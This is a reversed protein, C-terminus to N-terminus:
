VLGSKKAAMYNDVLDSIQEKTTVTQKGHKNKQNSLWTNLLRKCDSSEAVKLRLPDASLHAYAEKAAQMFDKGKHTSKLNEVFIEDFQKLFWELNKNEYEQGQEQGNGQGQGQGQGRVLPKYAGVKNKQLINIVSVHLRNNEKLEGYQFDIFDKIFWKSGGNIIEIKGYFAEEAKKQDIKEGIRIEAVDFDVHWIGAHDCDDLIYFWLLKYAGQLGRIFPKKWKDTDSFRKAM